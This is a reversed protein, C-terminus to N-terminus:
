VVSVMPGYAALRADHTVLRYPETLATAVLMRDFPDDHHRPLGELMQVHAVSVPVIAFGSARFMEFAEQASWPMVKIGHKAHKIAIEWLSVVSVFFGPAPDILLARAGQPLCPNDEVAWIAIHTDLLFNM